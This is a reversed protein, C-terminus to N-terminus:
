ILYIMLSAFTIGGCTFFGIVTGLIISQIYKWDKYIISMGIYLLFFALLVGFYLVCLFISIPTIDTFFNEITYLSTTMYFCGFLISIGIYHKDVFKIFNNPYNKDPSNQQDKNSIIVGGRFIILIYSVIGCYLCIDVFLNYFNCIYRIIIVIFYLYFKSFQPSTFISM